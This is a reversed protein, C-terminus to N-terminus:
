GPITIRQGVYVPTQMTANNAALLAEVTVGLKAAIAPWFDNAVAIYYNGQPAQTSNSGGGSSGGGSSGSGSSGSDGATNAPPIRLQMGVYLPTQITMDNYAALVEPKIGLKDGIAYWYDNAVVVYVNGQVGGAQTSGGGTAGSSGADGGTAAASSPPAVTTPPATVPITRFSTSDVVSTPAAVNGGGGGGCAGLLLLGAASLTGAAV